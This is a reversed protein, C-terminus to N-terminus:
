AEGRLSELVLTDFADQLIEQYTKKGMYVLYTGNRKDVINGAICYESMGKSVPSMVGDLASEWVRSYVANDIFSEVIADHTYGSLEFQFFERGDQNTTLWDVCSYTKDTFVINKM